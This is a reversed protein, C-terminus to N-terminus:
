FELAPISREGVVDGASFSAGLQRRIRRAIALLTKKEIQRIRERTVDFRTAIEELTLGSPYRAVLDLVCSGIVSVRALLEDVFAELEAFSPESSLKSGGVISIRGFEDVDIALHHRCAFRMCPRPIAACDARTAPAIALAASRIM